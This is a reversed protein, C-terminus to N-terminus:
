GIELGILGVILFEKFILVLVKKEIFVFDLMIGSIFVIIYKEFGGEVSFRGDLWGKM